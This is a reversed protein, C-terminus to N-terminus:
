DVEAQAIYVVCSGDPTAFNLDHALEDGIENIPTDCQEAAMIKACDLAENFSDRKRIIGLRGDVVNVILYPNSM